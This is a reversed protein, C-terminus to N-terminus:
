RISVPSSRDALGYVLNRHFVTEEMDETTQDGDSQDEYQGSESETRARGERHENDQHKSAMQEHHAPMRMTTVPM